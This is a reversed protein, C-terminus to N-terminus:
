AAGIEVNSNDVTNPAGVIMTGNFIDISAGFSRVNPDATIQRSTETMNQWGSAPKKFIYVLGSTPNGNQHYSDGVYIFDGSIKVARGFGQYIVPDSPVLSAIKKWNSGDYQFVYVVGMYTQLTDSGPAGVVAINGDFDLTQGFSETNDGAKNPLFKAARPWCQSFVSCSPLLFFSFVVPLFFKGFM